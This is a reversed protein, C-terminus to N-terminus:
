AEREVSDWGLIDRKRRCVFGPTDERMEEESILPRSFCGSCGGVYKCDGCSEKNPSQLKAFHWFVPRSFIDEIKEEFLNGMVLMEPPMLVCPRIRGEPSCVINRHGGGCNLRHELEEESIDPKRVFDPYDEYLRPILKLFGQVQQEDLGELGKGRGIQLIPNCSFSVAGLERALRLTDDVYDFNKRYVDMAVSVDLNRAAAKKIFSTVAAYAGKVGRIEDHMEEVACDLDVQIKIRDRYASFIDLHKEKFNTGNSLVIVKPCYELATTLIKLFDKHTSPEGGTLHISKLGYRSLSRVAGLLKETDAFSTKSSDSNRYCHECCLNCFDTLEFVVNDPYCYDSVDIFRTPRKEPTDSMKLVGEDMMAQFFATTQDIYESVQEADRCGMSFSLLLDGFSKTGDCQGLVAEGSENVGVVHRGTEDKLLMSSYKKIVEMQESIYPYKEIM